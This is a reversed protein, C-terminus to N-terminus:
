TAMSGIANVFKGMDIAYFGSSSISNTEIVKYGDPTHAIDIVVARRPNWEALREELYRTVASDDEMESYEVKKGTKYRSGTVFKGDVVYCRYEAWIEKIPAIQIITDLPCSTWGTIDTIRDRFEAFEEPNMLTGSFAKGDNSPRVFFAQDPVRISGLEGTTSDANLMENGWHELCEFFDPAEIYGPNWGHNESVGNMSTTGTVFVPNPVDLMIPQDDEMGVLYDAFPPKRCLTHSVGQRDLNHILSDYGLERKLSTNVIWHM